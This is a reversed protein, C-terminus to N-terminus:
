RGAAPRWGGGGRESGTLDPGTRGGEAAPGCTLRVADLCTQASPCDGGEEEGHGQWTPGLPRVSPCTREVESMGARELNNEGGLGQNNYFYTCTQSSIVKQTTTWIFCM